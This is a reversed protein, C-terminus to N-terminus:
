TQLVRIEIQKTSTPLPVRISSLPENNPMPQHRSKLSIIHICPSLFLVAFYWFECPFSYFSRALDQWFVTKEGKVSKFLTRWCSFESLFMGFNSLVLKVICKYKYYRKLNPKVNFLCSILNLYLFEQLSNITLTKL